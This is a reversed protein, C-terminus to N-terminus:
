FLLIDGSFSFDELEDYNHESEWARVDVGLTAELIQRGHAGLITYCNRLNDFSNEVWSNLDMNNM